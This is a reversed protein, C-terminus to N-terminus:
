RDKDEDNASMKADDACSELFQMFRELDTIVAVHCSELEDALENIRSPRLSFAYVNRLVHCFARYEDLCLRTMRSVVAPRVHEVEASMQLLLKRHWDPGEPLSEDVTRGIDEFIREVGSYFGHLNLAM